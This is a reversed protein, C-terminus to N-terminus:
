RPKEVAPHSGSGKEVAETNRDISERVYEMLTCQRQATKNQDAIVGTLLGEIQKHMAENDKKCQADNALCREKNSKVEALLYGVTGVLVLMLVGVLWILVTPTDSSAPATPIELALLELM